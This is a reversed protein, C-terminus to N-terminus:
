RHLTKINAWTDLLKGYPEVPALGKMDIKIQSDTLVKGYIAVDDILGTFYRTTGTIQAGIKLTETSKTNIGKGTQKGVADLEGNIFIQHSFDKSDWTAAVHVWNNEKVVTKGAFGQESTVGDAVAVLAKGAFMFLGIHDGPVTWAWKGVITSEPSLVKPNVWAEITLGPFEQNLVPNNGCDVYGAGGLSIAFGYKGDKVIKADGKLTGISDNGSDDQIKDGVMKDFSMYFILDKDKASVSLSLLCFCILLGILLIRLM